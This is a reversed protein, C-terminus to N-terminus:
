CQSAIKKRMFVTVKEVTNADTLALSMAAMDRLRHVLGCTKCQAGGLNVVIVTPNRTMHQGLYELLFLRSLRYEHVTTGRVVEVVLYGDVSIKERVSEQLKALRVAVDTHGPLPMNWDVSCHYTDTATRKGTVKNIKVVPKLTAHKHEIHTTGDTLDVGKHAASVTLHPHKSAYHIEHIKNMDDVILPVLAALRPKLINQIPTMDMDPAAAALLALFMDLQGALALTQALM